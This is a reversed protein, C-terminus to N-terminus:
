GGTGAPLALHYRVDAFCSSIAVNGMRAAPLKASIDQKDKINYGTL